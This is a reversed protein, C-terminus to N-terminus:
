EGANIDFIQAGEEPDGYINARPRPPPEKGAAIAEDRQRDLAREGALGGGVAFNGEHCSYEYAYYGPQTTWMTRMTFPATYTEPDNITARYEIMEPDVRRIRETLVMNVSNTPGGVSSRDTFGRSEVVLTDGDWYGRASGTFQPIAPYPRNRDLAIVRTEHIMEYTISVTDPSQGIRIGNGYIAAGMGRNIGLGICRDYLSFDDFSDFRESTFSGRGAGAQQRARAADTIPPQRGDPPDIILSSYGFTRTGWENRLFTETTAARTRGSHQQVARALFQEQPLSAQTGLAQPRDRPIGRMDDTSYTGALAPDGWSTRPARWNPNKALATQQEAPIRREAPLAAIEEASPPQAQQGGPGGGQGRQANARPPGEGEQAILTASASLVLFAAITSSLTKLTM